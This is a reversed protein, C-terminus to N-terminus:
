SLDNAPKEKYEDLVWELACKMSEFVIESLREQLDSSLKSTEKACPPAGAQILTIKDKIQQETKM